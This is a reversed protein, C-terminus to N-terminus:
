ADEKILHSGTTWGQRRVAGLISEAIQTRTFRPGYVLADGTQEEIAKAIRGLVIRNRMKLRRFLNGRTWDITQLNFSTSSGPVVKEVELDPDQGVLRERVPRFCDANIGTVYEEESVKIIDGKKLLGFRGVRDPEEAVYELKRDMGSDLVISYRFLFFGGGGPPSPPDMM